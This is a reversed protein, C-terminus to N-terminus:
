GELHEGLRCDERSDNANVSDDPEVAILKNDKVHCKLICASDWCGNAPCSTYFSGSGKADSEAQM